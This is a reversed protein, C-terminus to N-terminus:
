GALVKSPIRPRALGVALYRAIMANIQDPVELPSFHGAGLTKAVVLQPCLARLRDLDRAMEVLPVAASLYAVPVTCAQAAPASDYGSLMNRFASVAVHQPTTRHAACIQELLRDKRMPDAPDVHDMFMDLASNRAAGFYDSGSIQELLQRALEAAEPPPFIITDIMVVGSPLDPYRGALELAIMGGLSHGVILPRHLGLQNCQWAIDDAFGEITYDQRPADSDGHGRLNIAVVRRRRAFYTIQPLLARHEGIWGHIFVLPPAAPVDPGVDVHALAVGDRVLRVLKLETTDSM